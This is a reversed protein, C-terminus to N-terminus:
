TAHAISQGYWTWYAAARVESMKWDYRGNRPHRREIEGSRRMTRVCEQGVGIETEGDLVVHTYQILRGCRACRTEHEAPDDDYHCIPTLIM